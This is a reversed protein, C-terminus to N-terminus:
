IQREVLTETDFPKLYKDYYPNYPHEGDKCYKNDFYRSYTILYTNKKGVAFSYPVDSNGVESEFSLIEDDIEFSSILSEIIIYKNTKGNKAVHVLINNGKYGDENPDEGVFVQLYNRITKVLVTYQEEDDEDFDSQEDYPVHAYIKIKDERIVVKFPRAGNDHIMYYEAM